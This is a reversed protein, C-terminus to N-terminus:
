QANISQGSVGRSDAGMLFLYTPMIDEPAPLTGPDEAPYAGARMATRTAGPNICNVRTNGVGELEEALVQCMGETAFKSVSYAGWYARGKRGVGSSTFVISGSASRELLPLLAQTMMFAANVNVQMVELWQESDTQAIAKRDGLISANHLLGDLRGFERQLTDHMDRYDKMTAGGLHMPYIAAQPFGANDIDDYVAELKDITKGVLIVTAGHAAFTKAACRGIGDGAGTVVIINDQLLQEPAQYRHPESTMATRNWFLTSLCQHNVLDTIFKASFVRRYYRNYKM